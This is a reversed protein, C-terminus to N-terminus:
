QAIRRVLAIIYSLNDIPKEEAYQLIREVVRNAYRSSGPKEGENDLERMVKLLQKVAPFM